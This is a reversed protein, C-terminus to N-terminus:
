ASIKASNFKVKDLFFNNPSNTFFPGPKKVDLRERRDFVSEVPIPENDPNYYLVDDDDDKTASSDEYDFDYNSIDREEDDPYLEDMLTTPNNRRERQNTRPQRVDDDPNWIPQELEEVFDGEDESMDEDDLSDEDLPEFNQSQTNYLNEYLDPVIYGADEPAVVYDVNQPSFVYGYSSPLEEWPLSDDELPPYYSAERKEVPHYDEYQQLYAPVNQLYSQPLPAYYADDGPRPLNEPPAFNYIPLDPLDEEQPFFDPSYELPIDKNLYL